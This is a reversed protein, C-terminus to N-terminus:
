KFLRALSWFIFIGGLVIVLVLLDGFRFWMIAAFIAYSALMISSPARFFTLIAAIAFFMIALFIGTSGAFVTIFWYELDFPLNFAM